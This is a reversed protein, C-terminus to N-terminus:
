VSEKRREKAIKIGRTAFEEKLAEHMFDATQIYHEGMAWWSFETKMDDRSLGTVVVEADRDTLRWPCRLAAAEAAARVTKLDSDGELLIAIEVQVPKDMEVNEIPGETMKGNPIIIKKGHDNTLITNFIQIETVIGTRGDVTLLDGVKYPKFLLVLVGSAFNGLSGQLALGISFAVASFVAIFSTTEIGVTNAVLLVLFVKMGTDALSTFFPRLSEDVKRRRLFVDFGRTLRKIVWLGGLFLALAMLVKPGFTWAFEVFHDIYTKEEM